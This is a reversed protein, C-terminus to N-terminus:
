TSDSSQNMCYIESMGGFFIFPVYDVGGMKIKKYCSFLAFGCFEVM